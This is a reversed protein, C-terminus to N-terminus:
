YDLAIVRCFLILGSALMLHMIECGSCCEQLTVHSYTLCKQAIHLVLSFNYIKVLDLSIVRCISFLDVFSVDPSCLMRTFNWSRLVYVKKNFIAFKVLDFAIVRCISFLDVCLRGLACSCMSVLIGTFNWSELDFVKQALAFCFLISVLTFRFGGMTSACFKLRFILISLVVLCPSLCDQSTESFAGGVWHNHLHFPKRFSPFVSLQWFQGVHWNTWLHQKEWTFVSDMWKKCLWM